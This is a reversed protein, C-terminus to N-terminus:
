GAPRSAVFSALDRAEPEWSPLYGNTVLVSEDTAIGIVAVVHSDQVLVPWDRRDVPAIRAERLLDKVSKHHDRQGIVGHQRTLRLKEGRRFGPSAPRWGVRGFGACDLPVGVECTTDFPKKHAVERLRWVADHLSLVRAKDIQVTGSGENELVALRDKLPRGLRHGITAELWRVVADRGDDRDPDANVAIKRAADPDHAEILPMLEHRIFSRDFRRDDNMPDECWALENAHAFRDIETGSVGLLPRMLMGPGLRRSGPMGVPPRGTLLQWIRTEAQDSAHHATFVVDGPTLLSEVARYRARRAEAEINGAAVRVHVVDLPVDLRRCVAECHAQWEDSQEALDHNIHVARCESLRAFASLLVTSDRGGSLAIWPARDGLRGRARELAQEVSLM